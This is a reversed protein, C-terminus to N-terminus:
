HVCPSLAMCAPMCGQPAHHTVLDILDCGTISHVGAVSKKRQLKYALLGIGVFHSIEALVFLTDHDEITRWLLMLLQLHPCRMTWHHTVM